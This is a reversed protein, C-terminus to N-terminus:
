TKQMQFRSSTPSLYPSDERLEPNIKKNMTMVFSDRSAIKQWTHVLTTSTWKKHHLAQPQRVVDFDPWDKNYKETGTTWKKTRIEMKYEPTLYYGELELAHKNPIIPDENAHHPSFEEPAIIMGVRLVTHGHSIPLSAYTNIIQTIFWHLPTPILALLKPLHEINPTMGEETCNFLEEVYGLNHTYYLNIVDEQTSPNTPDSHIEPDYVDALRTQTIKSDAAPWIEPSSFHVTNGTSQLYKILPEAWTNIAITGQPKKESCQVRLPHRTPYLPTGLQEAARHMMSGLLIPMDSDSGGAMGRILIGHKEQMTTDVPNKYKFGYKTAGANFVVEDTFDTLKLKEKIFYRLPALVSNIEEM